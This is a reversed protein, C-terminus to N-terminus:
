GGVSAGNAFNADALKTVADTITQTQLLSFGASFIDVQPNHARAPTALVWVGGRGDRSTGVNVGGHYTQEFALVSDVLLKGTNDFLRMVPADNPNNDGADAGVLIRALGSADFLGAAVTV